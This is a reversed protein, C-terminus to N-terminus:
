IIWACATKLFSFPVPKQEEWGEQIIGALYGCAAVDWPRRCRMLRCMQYSVMIQMNCLGDQHQFSGKRSHWLWKWSHPTAICREQSALSGRQGQWSTSARAQVAPLTGQFCKQESAYKHFASASHCTGPHAKGSHEKSERPWQRAEVIPLLKYM